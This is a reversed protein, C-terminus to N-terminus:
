MPTIVNARKLSFPRMPCFQGLIEPLFVEQSADDEAMEGICKIVLLNLCM